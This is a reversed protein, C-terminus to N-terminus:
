GLLHRELFEAITRYAKLRNARKGFDHGEDPFVLYDVTRGLTRLREVMQDSEARVVRPDNAGQIVLLPCRLQDVYTIPSRSMLLERDEDPDGIWDKMLQRWHAPVSRTFTVLNAPGVMDCACVWYQPLRTAASLTAFGGYSRGFVALRTSNVWPLSQLYRACAEIDRLEDGGWDRHIRQQYDAGFGTSGRINPALIAIGRSLLYQYFGGHAYIPREQAEPGGHISLLAPVPTDAPVGSPRYLWAPVQLGDFSDIHVLEPAVLAAVPLNGLMARTIQRMEGQDLDLVFIADAEAYTSMALFLRARQDRPAFHIATVAGPPLQPVSLERGSARQQVRLVSRGAENTSWALLRGDASLDMAEVDWPPTVIYQWKGEALDYRALGTFDRGCNTLLFFGSGDPEWAAPLYKICEGAHTTLNNREGSPFDILWIDSDTNSYAQLVLLQQGDPSFGFPYTLGGPCVLREEGNDLDRVYVDATGRGPDTASYALYRGDPSFESIVHQVDPRTTIAQPWGGAAAMLYIQYQENGEPDAFFAIRDGARTCALDRVTESEFCTLQDPWGGSSPVQWLNFQGSIDTVFYVSNGDPAPKFSALRRTAMFQEFQYARSPPM